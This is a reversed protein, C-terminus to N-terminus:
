MAPYIRWVVGETERREHKVYYGGFNEGEISKLRRGLELATIDGIVARLEEAKKIHRTLEDAYEKLDTCAFSRYEVYDTVAAVLRPADFKRTTVTVTPVNRIIIRDDSDTICCLHPGVRVLPDRKHMWRPIDDTRIVQGM